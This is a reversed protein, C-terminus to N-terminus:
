VVADEPVDPLRPLDGEAEFDGFLERAIILTSIPDELHRESTFPGTPPGVTEGERLMAQAYLMLEAPNGPRLGENWRIPYSQGKYRVTLTYV